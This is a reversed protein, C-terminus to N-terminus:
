EVARGLMTELESYDDPAAWPKGAHRCGPPHYDRIAVCPRERQCVGCPRMSVTVVGDNRETLGYARACPACIPDDTSYGVLTPTM